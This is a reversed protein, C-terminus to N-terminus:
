DIGAAEDRRSIFRVSRVESHSPPFLFSPSLTEIWTSNDVDINGIDSLIATSYRSRETPFYLPLRHVRNRWERTPYCLEEESVRMTRSCCGRDIEMAPRSQMDDLVYIYIYVGFTWSEIRCALFYRELTPLFRPTFWSRHVARVM